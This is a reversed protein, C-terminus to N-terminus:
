RPGGSSALRRIPAAPRCIWALAARRPQAFGAASRERADGGSQRPGDPARPRKAADRLATRHAPCTRRRPPAGRRLRIAASRAFSPRIIATKAQAFLRSGTPPRGSGKARRSATVSPATKCRRADTGLQGGM